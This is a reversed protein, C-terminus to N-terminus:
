GIIIRVLVVALLSLPYHSAKNFLAMAQSRDNEEVLRLAPFLLLWAGLGAVALLYLPNFRLPSVWMLMFTLLYAVTLCAISLLGARVLGLKVPITKAKFRRDEEIDTWDNPINQGGIEWFFILGLLVILFVASPQPDVAFVAAVAGLSKVIGNILARAPTVRWLRCYIVELIGGALFIFLCVPNLLWAGLMTVLAWGVAWLIGDTLGLVGKALPHRVLVGDLFDEGDSYGGYRVKEKDTRYDVIDNLAYVATYGSFVTLLGLLLVSLSPFHGLCLLAALAPTAIDIIGHPTRSLALLLKLRPHTLIANIIM